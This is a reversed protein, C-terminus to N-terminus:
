SWIRHKSVKTLVLWVPKVSDDLGKREEETLAGREDIWGELNDDDDDNEDSNLRRSKVEEQEINGALNRLEATVEDLRQNDQSRPVDFQQLISKVVLNLIHAFCCTQNLAGPFNNLMEPLEGIM